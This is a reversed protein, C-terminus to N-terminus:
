NKGNRGRGLENRIQNFDANRYDRYKEKWQKTEEKVLIEFSIKNHDSTGFRETVKVNRVQEENTSLILDLINEGRTAENVHQHLFLDQTQDLFRQGETQAEMLQWDITEHNFDGTIVVEGRQCAKRMLELLPEEDEVSNATTNYCVGLTLDEIKCWVTDTRDTNTLMELPTTKLTEKAYIICGGGRGLRDKRHCDYGQLKLEAKTHKEEAWSETIFVVDPDEEVVMSELEQKKNIISRANILM